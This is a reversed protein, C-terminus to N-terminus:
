VLGVNGDVGIAAAPRTAVAAVPPVGGVAFRRVVAHAIAARTAASSVPVASARARRAPLSSGALQAARWPNPDRRQLQPDCARGAERRRLHAPTRKVAGPREQGRVGSRATV